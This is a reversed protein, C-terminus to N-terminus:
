ARRKLQEAPIVDSHNADVNLSIAKLSSWAELDYRATTGRDARDPQGRRRLIM